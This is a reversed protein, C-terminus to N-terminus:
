KRGLQSGPRHHVEYLFDCPAQAILGPEEEAEFHLHHSEFGRGKSQWDKGFPLNCNLQPCKLLTSAIPRM